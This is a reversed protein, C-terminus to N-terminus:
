IIKHSGIFVSWAMSALRMNKSEVPFELSEKKYNITTNM